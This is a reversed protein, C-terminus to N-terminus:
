MRIYQANFNQMNKCWKSSQKKKRFCDKAIHGPKNCEYCVLQKMQHLQMISDNSKGSKENEKFNKLAVRFESLTPQKEKQTIVTNFTNYKDPLGKLIMSILLSDSVVERATKLSVGITEARIVYDTTNEGREMKLSCLKSYMTIIRPKGRGLYHERLIKLAKRGDYKADRIVLSLSRDDLRQVLEAFANANKNADPPNGDGPNIVGHLKQLWMYGMFKVEWLEYQSEDGNFLIRRPGYGTLNHTAM